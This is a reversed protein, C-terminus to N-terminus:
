YKSGLVYGLEGRYKDNDLNKTVSIAGIPQGNFCIARFWPHPIVKTNSLTSQM